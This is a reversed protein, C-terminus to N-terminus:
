AAKNMIGEPINKYSVRVRQNLTPTGTENSHGNRPVLIQIVKKQVNKEFIWPCLRSGWAIQSWLFRM